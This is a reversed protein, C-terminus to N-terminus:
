KITLIQLNAPADPVDDDDTGDLILDYYPLDTNDMARRTGYRSVSRAILRITRFENAIWSFHAVGNNAVDM